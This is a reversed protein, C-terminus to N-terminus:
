RQTELLTELLGAAIGSNDKLERPDQQFTRMERPFGKHELPDEPSGASIKPIGTSNGHIQHMGIYVEQMGAFNQPGGMSYWLLRTALMPNEHASPIFKHVM